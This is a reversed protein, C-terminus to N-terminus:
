RDQKTNGPAQPRPLAQVTFSIKGSELPFRGGDYVAFATFTGELNAPVKWEVEIGDAELAKTRRALRKGTADRVEIAVEAQWPVDGQKYVRAYDRGATDKQRLEFRVTDGEQKATLRAVIPSGVAVDSTKGEAVAVPPEALSGYRSESIVLRNDQPKGDATAREEYRFLRYQGTPVAVPDRGGQLVLLSTDGFLWARWSDHNIRLMGRPGGYLKASVHSGEASVGLEYLVGDVLVPHGYFGEATRTFSGDTLDVSFSDGAGYYPIGEPTRVAKTVDDVRLNCTADFFRVAHTRDGFRCTGQACAGLAMEFSPAAQRDRFEADVAVTVTRGGFRLPLSPHSFGYIYQQNVPEHFLLDRPVVAARRFDGTGETDVRLVDYHAADPQVSDIAVALVLPGRRLTVVLANPNVTGAGPKPKTFHALGDLSLRQTAFGPERFPVYALAGPPADPPLPPPVVRAARPKERVQIAMVRGTEDKITVVQPKPGTKEAMDPAAAAVETRGEVIPDLSPGRLLYPGMAGHPFWEHGEPTIVGALFGWRPHFRMATHGFPLGPIGAAKRWGGGPKEAFVTLRSNLRLTDLNYQLVFTRGADHACALGAPANEYPSEAMVEPGSWRIGDGSLYRLLRTAVKARKLEDLSGGMLFAPALLELRGDSRALIRSGGIAWGPEPDPIRSLTAWRCGDTSAMVTAGRAYLLRGRDDQILDHDSVSLADLAAPASWRVFDRSWAAYALMRHQGDRDSIFTLVFRGSEDRVLRPCTEVWGSSVPLDLKVPPSFTRGDTSTSAWLDGGRSWVMRIAQEDAQIAPATEMTHLRLDLCPYDRGVLTSTWSCWPSGNAWPLRGLVPTAKGAIVSVPTTWEGYPTGPEAARLTVSHQGASLPGVMGPLWRAFVGDVEVRLYATNSCSVDIAGPGIVKQLTPIVRIGRLVTPGSRPDKVALGCRVLLMGQRPVDSSRLGKARAIAVAEKRGPLFHGCGAYTGLVGVAVQVEADEGDAIPDFRLATFVHGGPAILILPVETQSRDFAADKDLNRRESGIIRVPVPLNYVQSAGDSTFCMMSQRIRPITDDALTHPEFSAATLMHHKLVNEICYSPQRAAGQEDGMAPPVALAAEKYRGVQSLLQASKWQFWQDGAMAGRSGWWSCEMVRAEPYRRGLDDYLKLLVDPTAGRCEYTHVYEMIADGVRPHVTDLYVFRELARRAHEYRDLFYYMKGVFYQAEMYQPDTRSAQRFRLWAEAYRGQDYLDMGEYLAKAAPLSRTWVPLQELIQAAPRKSFWALLEASLHRQLELVDESKGTIEKRAVEQRSGVEVIQGTIRIREGAVEYVGTVLHEIKLGQAIEKMRQPDTTAMEPVWNMKQALMQMEDRAVVALGRDQTFDTTIRDALGKELWKWGPTESKMQFNFVAVNTGAPAAEACAAAIAAAV